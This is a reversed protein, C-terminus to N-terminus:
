NEIRKLYLLRFDIASSGPIETATLSLTGAGKQANLEGMKIAKFDKVYSEIRPSRDRERGLLPPDHAQIITTKIKENKLTLELQTGVDEPKCTYYLYVEFRSDNLVEVNWTIFDNEKTWNTFFSDNPYRNSRKIEGHPSGDRAPLQAFGHISDGIPFRRKQTPKELAGVEKVWRKKLGILSDKIDPFQNSIDSMQARDSTIDYLRNEHDLRYKQTRISTKENWHNYVVRSKIPSDAKLLATSVDIGDFKISDTLQINALHALTPLLDVAGMLQESKTGATIKKPWKMFFPSKVGGEDTSGKKGRLNGNWRWRAPGNDSMFVVITNEELDNAKLYQTLRGLNWDINKVMALAARTFQTDEKESGHYNMKLSDKKFEEWFTDPVQMPSHPINMPLYLLFPRGKQLGIFEMGHNFFDDVLYGEGKTIEGNHEIMPSFYNGWHGSCFGYYDDFGRSNPHYPPQTGNHWKGYAATAYGASKFVEAVTPVGLDMREGGASTSYVGLRPFFQGTLLEARTPSCVPQVYFNEMVAGQMAISDINPTSLNTNGHYSVDGWAQDDTLLIIVNPPQVRPEERQHCSGFLISIVSMSLLYSRQRM